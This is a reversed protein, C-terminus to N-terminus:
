WVSNEKAWDSARKVEANYRELTECSIETVDGECYSVVMRKNPLAISCNIDCGHIWSHDEKGICRMWFSEFDLASSRELKNGLVSREFPFFGRKILSELLAEVKRGRKVYAENQHPEVWKAGAEVWFLHGFIEGVITEAQTKNLDAFYKFLELASQPKTIFSKVLKNM